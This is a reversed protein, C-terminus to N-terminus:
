LAQGKIETYTDRVDTPLQAHNHLRAHSHIATRGRKVTPQKIEAFFALTDPIDDCLLFIQSGLKIELRRLRRDSHHNHYNICGSRVVFIIHLGSLLYPM